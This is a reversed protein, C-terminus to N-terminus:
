KTKKFPPIYIKQRTKLEYPPKLKNIKALKKWNVRCRKALTQLTDDKQTTYIRCNKRFKAESFLAILYIILLVLLAAISGVTIKGGTSNLNLPIYINIQKKITEAPKKQNNIIDYESFTVTATAKYFGFFPQDDWKYVIDNKGGQLITASPLDIKKSLEPVGQIEIRQDAIIITNGDNKYSLTFTPKSNITGAQYTFDSWDYKNIKVGPVSVFLKVVVRSSISVANTQATNDVAAGSEAAIGGSYIGPTTNTPIKIIFNIEKKEKSKLKQMPEPFSVWKGINKQETTLTTLAFTGQNSQTGDAGYLHVNEETDGLNNLILKAEQQEGPKIEFSFQRQGQDSPILSIGALTSAPFILFLGAAIILNSFHKKNM